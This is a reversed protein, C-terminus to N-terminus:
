ETCKWHVQLEAIANVSIVQSTGQCRGRWQFSLFKKNTAVGGLMDSHHSQEFATNKWETGVLHLSLSLMRDHSLQLIILWLDVRTLQRQLANKHASPQDYEGRFQFPALGKKSRGRTCLM